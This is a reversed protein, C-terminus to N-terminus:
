VAGCEQMKSVLFDTYRKWSASGAYTPGGKSKFTAWELAQEPTIMFQKNIKPFAATHAAPLARPSHAWVPEQILAAGAALGVTKLFDRRSAGPIIGDRM